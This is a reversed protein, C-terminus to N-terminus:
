LFPSIRTPALGETASPSMRFRFCTSDESGQKIAKNYLIGCRKAVCKRCSAWSPLCPIALAKRRAGFAQAALVQAKEIAGTAPHLTGLNDFEDTTDIALVDQGVLNCFDPLVGSGRNHGPIHFGTMPAKKYNSMAEILPASPAKEFKELINEKISAFSIKNNEVIDTM